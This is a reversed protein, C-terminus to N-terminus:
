AKTESRGEAKKARIYCALLLAYNALDILTDEVSEDKVQLVGQKVFNAVRMFKDCMRTLFGQEAQCVGMGEVVKFNAFPDSGAGAYDANKSVMITRMRDLYSEFLSKFETRDM